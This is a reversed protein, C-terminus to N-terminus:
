GQGHSVEDASEQLVIKLGYVQEFLEGKERVGQRELTLDSPQRIHIRCEGRDIVVDLDRRSQVHGRDLADALRLIAALKCVTVREERGLMAYVEHAPKPPARRHYRAVLAVQELDRAGLGFVDSNLILYLSHKHHNRTSVYAGVEHLMAAVNLLLEHRPGLRHEAQLAAFLQRSLDAVQHAHPEDVHYRRGLETSSNLIQRKFEDTWAGQSAMECLVGDRLTAGGVLVQKLGLGQALRVYVLLAPGLTEADQYSVHYQQVMDDASMALLDQTLKSLASVSIKVVQRKDWKPDLQTAAFRADGGLALLAANQNKPLSYQIQGVGRDVHSRLIKGSKAEPAREEDLLRRLRLSGLRYTQASVITGRDLHLLETSGGGVEVIMTEGDRLAPVSQLLPAVALYTFRNVEAEDIVDVGIGTAIYLRDLFAERNESERVASTAIARVNASPVQYEQLATNFQRLARVCAETTEAGIVGTTFTDKGLALAQQLTELPQFSGDAQVQALAMRVSTTGLEIVAVLRVVPDPAVAPVAPKTELPSDNSM